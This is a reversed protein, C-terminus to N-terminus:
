MQHTASVGSLVYSSPVSVNKTCCPLIATCVKANLAVRLAQRERLGRRVSVLAEGSAVHSSAALDADLWGLDAEQVSVEGASM